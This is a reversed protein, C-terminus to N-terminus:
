FPVEDGEEDEDEDGEQGEEEDEDGGEPVLVDIQRVRLGTFKLVDSEGESRQLFESEEDDDLSELFREFGNPYLEQRRLTWWRWRREVQWASKYRRRRAGTWWDASKPEPAVVLVRLSRLFLTMNRWNASRKGSKGRTMVGAKEAEAKREYWRDGAAKFLPWSFDEWRGSYKFFYCDVTLPAGPELETLSDHWAFISELEEPEQWEGGLNRARDGKRYVKRRKGHRRVPRAQRKGM